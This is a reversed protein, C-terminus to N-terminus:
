GPDNPLGTKIEFNKRSKYGRRPMLEAPKSRKSSLCSTVLEFRTHGVVWAFGTKRFAFRTKKNEAVPSVGAIEVTLFIFIGRRICSCPIAHISDGGRIVSRLSTIWYTGCGM